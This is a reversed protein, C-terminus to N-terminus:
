CRAIAGFKGNPPALHDPMPTSFPGHPKSPNVSIWTTFTAFCYGLNKPAPPGDPNLGRRGAAKGPIVAGVALVDHEALEIAIKPCKSSRLPEETRFDARAHRDDPQAVAPQPKM